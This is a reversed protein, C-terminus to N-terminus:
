RRHYTGERKDFFARLAEAHDETRFLAAFERAQLMTADESSLDPSRNLCRKTAEVSLPSRSAIREAVEVGRAVVGGPADAAVLETALGWEVAQEARCTWGTLLLHRARGDGIREALSRFSAVLGVNVGAAGFTATSAAIRIDCALALELGGGFAPGNVAAVVPVRLERVTHLLRGIDGLLDGVEHRGISQEQRLDAGACFRTGAGTLVVARVDLDAAAAVLAETLERQHERDLANVPPRDITLLRVHAAPTEVAIV